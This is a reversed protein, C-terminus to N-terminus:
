RERGPGERRPSADGQAQSPGRSRRRGARGHAGRDSGRGRDGQAEPLAFEPKVTITFDFEVNKSPVVEIEDVKLDPDAIPSLDNKELAEEFAADLLTQKVELAVQEGYKKEILKRPAKGQRFGPMPVSKIWQRFSKDFEESVRESPISVSVRKRCPGAEEITFDM